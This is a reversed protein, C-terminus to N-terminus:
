RENSDFVNIFAGKDSIMKGDRLARLELEIMGLEVSCLKEFINNKWNDKCIKFDKEVILNYVIIFSKNTSKILFVQISSFNTTTKIVFDALLDKM